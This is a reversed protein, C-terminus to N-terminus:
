LTYRLVAALYGTGPLDAKRVGLVRAGSTLARSAIEDVVGYNTADAKEAFTIAGTQEDVVGPVIADIDV